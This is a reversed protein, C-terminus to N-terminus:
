GKRTVIEWEGEKLPEVSLVEHGQEKLSRPVNRTAPEYDVEVRLVSGDEMGELKLKTKVFTYPCVVGRIDLTDDVEVEGKM